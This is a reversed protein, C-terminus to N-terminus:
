VIIEIWRRKKSRGDKIYDWMLRKRQEKKSESEVLTRPTSALTNSWATGTETEGGSQSSSSEMSGLEDYATRRMGLTRLDLWCSDWKVGRLLSEPWRAFSLDLQVLNPTALALKPLWTSPHVATPHDLATPKAALSLDRLTVLPTLTTFFQDTYHLYTTGALNLNTLSPFRPRVRSTTTPTVKTSRHADAHAYGHSRGAPDLEQLLLDQLGKLSIPSFALNLRTLNSAIPNASGIPDLELRRDWEGAPGDENVSTAEESWTDDDVNHGAECVEGNDEKLLEEIAREQLPWSMPAVDLLKLRVHPPLLHILPLYLSTGTPLALDYCVIQGVIEALTDVKTFQRPEGTLPELISRKVAISLGQANRNSSLQRRDPVSKAARTTSHGTQLQEAELWSRPPPPGSASTTRNASTHPRETGNLENHTGALVLLRLRHNLSASPEPGVQRRQTGRQEARLRALREPISETRYNVDNPAARRPIMCSLGRSSTSELEDCDSRSDLWDIEDANM